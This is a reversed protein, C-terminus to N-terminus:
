LIGIEKVKGVDSKKGVASVPLVDDSIWDLTGDTGPHDTLRTIEGTPIHYKYINCPPLQDPLPGPENSITFCFLPCSETIM